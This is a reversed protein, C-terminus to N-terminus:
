DLADENYVYAMGLDPDCGIYDDAYCGLDPDVWWAFYCDILDESATNILKYNYFTMDNLEDNSSYAFAHVQFEMRITASGSLSHSGANDNFIFFNIEAPIPMEHHYGEECGNNLVYPYDGDCPDYIGDDNMDWYGALPQNPLSWGFEEWFYPNGQAPWYLVDEPIDECKLTQNETVAKKYNVIHQSINKGNVTFIKDWQRCIDADSTGNIDVPGSFYDFGQSRYGVASLKINKARDVGGMWVGAAYIGSVPVDTNSPTIYQAASFLDGGSLLRARVNNVKMDYSATPRVCGAVMSETASLLKVSKANVWDSLFLLLILVTIKFVNKM